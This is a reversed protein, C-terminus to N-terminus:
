TDQGYSLFSLFLCKATVWNQPLALHEYQSIYECYELFREEMDDIGFSINGDLFRDMEEIDERDISLLM